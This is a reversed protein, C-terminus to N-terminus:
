EQPQEETIPDTPPTEEPIEVPPNTVIDYWNDFRQQKMAEIETASYKHDKPLWLADKLTYGNKTIEFDIKIM